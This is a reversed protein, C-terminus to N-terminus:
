SFRLVVQGLNQLAERLELFGFLQGARRDLIEREGAVWSLHGEGHGFVRQSANVRGLSTKSFRFLRELLGQRDALIQPPRLVILDSFALDVQRRKVRGGRSEQLGLFHQFRRQPGKFLHQPRFVLSNGFCCGIQAHKVILRTAPGLSLRQM